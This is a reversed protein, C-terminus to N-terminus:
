TLYRQETICALTYMANALQDIIAQESLANVRELFLERSLNTIHPFATFAEIPALEGPKSQKMLIEYINGISGLPHLSLFAYWVSLGCFLYAIVVVALIASDLMAGPLHFLDTSKDSLKTVVLANGALVLSARVYISSKQSDIQQHAYRLYDYKSDQAMKEEAGEKLAEEAQNKYLYGVM